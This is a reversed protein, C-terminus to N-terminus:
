GLREALEHAYAAACLLLARDKTLWIKAPVGAVLGQALAPRSPPLPWDAHPLVATELESPTLWWGVFGADEEIIAPENGLAVRGEGILLLDDSALRLAAVGEPWALGDLTLPSAVLRLAPLREPARV